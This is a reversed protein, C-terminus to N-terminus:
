RAATADAKEDQEACKHTTAHEQVFTEFDAKEMPKAFFFGQAESCRLNRLYNAVEETEVGEVTVALDMDRMLNIINRLLLNSKEDEPVGTLFSRDVKARSAKVERLMSLSSHGTGFDDISTSIGLESLKEIAALTKVPNNAITTETIEFELASAPIDFSGLTREVFDVFNERDLQKPSINVALKVQSLIPDSKWEQIAACSELFIFRGIGEILDANEAVPIFLSPPIMEGAETRWRILTEAAAFRGTALDIKPQFVPFFEQMQLADRIKHVLSATQLVRAVDAETLLYVEGRHSAKAEFYAMDAFRLATSATTTLMPVEVGGTTLTISARAAGFEFPDSLADQIRDQISEALEAASHGPRIEFLASFRDGNGRGFFDCPTLAHELRKGVLRIVNNGDEMGFTTNIARMQDIGMEMLLFRMRNSEAARLATELSISLAEKNPLSTLQDYYLSLHVRDEFESVNSMERLFAVFYLEDGFRYDAVHIDVPFVSGNKRRAWLRRLNNVVNGRKGQIYDMIYRAHHPSHTENMLIEVREGVLESMSEYGFTELTRKNVAVIKSDKNISVISDNTNHFVLELREIQEELTKAPGFIPTTSEAPM